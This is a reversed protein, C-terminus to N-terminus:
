SDEEDKLVGYNFGTTSGYGSQAEQSPETRTAEALHHGNSAASSDPDEVDATDAAAATDRLSRDLSHGLSSTLAAQGAGMSSKRRQRKDHKRSFYVAVRDSATPKSIIWFVMVMLVLGGCCGVTVLVIEAVGLDDSYKAVVYARLFVELEVATDQRWLGRWYVSELTQELVRQTGANTRNANPENFFASIDNFRATSAFSNALATLPEQAFLGSSGTFLQDFLTNGASGNTMREWLPARATCQKLAVLAQVRVNTRVSDSVIFDIAARVLTGSDDLYVTGLARLIAAQQEANLAPYLRLVEDLLRRNSPDYALVGGFFASLVDSSIFGLRGDDSVRLSDCGACRDQDACERNSCEAFVNFAATVVARDNLAVLAELVVSQLRKCESGDPCRDDYGFPDEVDDILAGLIRRLVDHAFERLNARLSVNATTMPGPGLAVECLIDDIARLSQAMVVFVPAYGIAVASDASRDTNPLMVAVVRQVFELFSDPSIYGAMALAYRDSVLLLQNEPGLEMWHDVLLGFSFDDYFVRFLNFLGQTSESQADVPNVVYFESISSDPRAKISVLQRQSMINDDVVPLVTGEGDMWLMPIDWLQGDFANVLDQDVFPISGDNNWFAPGMSVFRRQSINFTLNGGTVRAEVTVLPFGEQEIYSRMVGSALEDGNLEDLVAALEESSATGFAYRELHATIARLFLPQSMYNAVMNVVGMGKQYTIPSFSALILSPDGSFNRPRVSPTFLSADELLVNAVAGVKLAMLNYGPQVLNAGVYSMWTAFAENLWLDDWFSPSVLNGFWQHAVEHAIIVIQGSLDSQSSVAEDLLLRSSRYVMLGWNEMGGAAFDSVGISDLKPIGSDTFSLNFGDAGEFVDLVRVSQELAFQARSANGFSHPYYVSQIGDEGEEVSRYGGVIFALLYTSMIPTTAFTVRHCQSAAQGDPATWPCEGSVEVEAGLIPMNSLKTAAAPAILTVNFTAKFAPEDFCPFVSRADTAQLQTVLNTVTVGDVTYTSLYWGALDAGGRLDASFNMTVAFDNDAVLPQIATKLVDFTAMAIQTSANFAVSVIDYSAPNTGTVQLTASSIAMNNIPHYNFAIQFNGDPDDFYPDDFYGATINIAISEFGIFNGSDINPHLLVDYHTPLLTVPLRFISQSDVAVSLLVCVIPFLSLTAM